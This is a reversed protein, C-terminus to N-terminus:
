TRVVEYLGPYHPFVENYPDTLNKFEESNIAAEFHGATQWEAINILHFRAWPVIARHSRTSIFGPQKRMSDAVREWFALAEEQKDDPVEFANILIVAM